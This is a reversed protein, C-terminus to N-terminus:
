RVDKLNFVVLAETTSAVAVGGQIAPTYKWHALVWSMATQDLDAYGSSQEVDAAVVIGQPSITLRLQVSGREGMRRALLPYDPITHTGVVGTAASDPPGLSAPQKPPAVTGTIPTDRAITFKPAEVTVPNDDLTPLTPKPPQAVPKPPEQKAPFTLVIDAPAVSKVIKMALGSMLAWIAIVHLLVVFGIGVAREPSTGRAINSPHIPQRM